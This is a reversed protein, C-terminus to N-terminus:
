DSILKRKMYVSFGGVLIEPQHSEQQKVRVKM